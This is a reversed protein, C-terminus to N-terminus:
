HKTIQNSFFIYIYFSNYAPETSLTLIEIIASQIHESSFRRYEYDYSGSLDQIKVNNFLYRTKWM